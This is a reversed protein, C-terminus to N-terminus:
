DLEVEKNVILYKGECNNTPFMSMMHRNIKTALKGPDPILYFTALQARRHCIRKIVNDSTPPVAGFTPPATWPLGSSPSPLLVNQAKQRSAKARASLNVKKMAAM